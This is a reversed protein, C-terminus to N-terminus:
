LLTIFFFRFNMVNESVAVYACVNVFMLSCSIGTWVKEAHLSEAIKTMGEVVKDYVARKSRSTEFMRRKDVKIKM